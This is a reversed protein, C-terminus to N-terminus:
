TQGTGEQEERNEEREELRKEIATLRESLRLLMAFIAAIVGVAMLLLGWEGLFTALFFLALGLVFM